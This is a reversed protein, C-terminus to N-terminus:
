KLYIIEFVNVMFDFLMRNCINGGIFDKIVLSFCGKIKGDVEIGVGWEGVFCGFWYVGGEGGYCLIEEYFGFYGLNNGFVIWINNFDLINNKIWVLLLFLELLYYFQLLFDFWDAVCGM